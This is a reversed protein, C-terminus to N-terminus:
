IVPHILLLPLPYPLSLFFPFPLPLNTAWYLFSCVSKKQVRALPRALLTRPLPCCEVLIASFDSPSSNAKVSVPICLHGFCLLKPLELGARGYSGLIHSSLFIFSGSMCPKMDALPSPPLPLM